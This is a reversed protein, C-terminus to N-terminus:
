FLPQVSTASTKPVRKEFFHGKQGTSFAAGFKYILALVTAVTAAYLLSFLIEWKQNGVRVVNQYDTNIEKNEM